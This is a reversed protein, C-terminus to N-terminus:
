ARSRARWLAITYDGISYASAIAVLTLLPPLWAPQVYLVALTALQLVTVVKGPLRSKFTVARLRPVARATLFGVATMFDRSILIAYQWTGLTGDFLLVCVAVFVFFRDAVSDILAGWRTVSGRSRAFYGDLFDTAGAAVIVVLRENSGKLVVYAAALGLRSLSIMNPLTALSDRGM